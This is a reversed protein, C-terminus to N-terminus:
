SHPPTPTTWLCNALSPLERHLGVVVVVDVDADAAVAEAGVVGALLVLRKQHREPPTLLLLLVPYQLCPHQLIRLNHM